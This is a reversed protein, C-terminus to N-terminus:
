RRSNRSMFGPFAGSSLVAPRYRRWVRTSGRLIAKRRWHSLVKEGYLLPLVRRSLSYQPAYNPAVAGQEIL